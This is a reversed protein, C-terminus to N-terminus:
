LSNLKKTSKLPNLKETNESVKDCVTLIRFERFIWLEHHGACTNSQFIRKSGFRAKKFISNSKKKPSFRKKTADTNLMLM